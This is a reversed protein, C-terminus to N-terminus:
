RRALVREVIPEIEDRDVKTALASEIRTVTARVEGLEGRVEGLEGRVERIARSNELVALEVQGFRRDVREFRDDVQEFQKAVEDRFGQLAEGFVNFKANLDELVVVFAADSRPPKPPRRKRVVM